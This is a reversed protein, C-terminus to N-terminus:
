NKSIEPNFTGVSNVHQSMLLLILSRATRHQKKAIACFPHWIIKPVSRLLYELTEYEQGCCALASLLHEPYLEICSYCFFSTGRAYLNRRKKSCCACKGTKAM